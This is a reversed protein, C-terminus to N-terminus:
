KMVRFLIKGLNTKLVAVLYSFGIWTNLIPLLSLLVLCLLSYRLSRKRMKTIVKKGNVVETSVNRLHAYAGINCMLSLGASIIYVALLLDLLM